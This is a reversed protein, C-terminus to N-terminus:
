RPSLGIVLSSIGFVIVGFLFLKRRGFIDGLRGGTMMFVALTLTYANM